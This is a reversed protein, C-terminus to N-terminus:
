KPRMFRYLFRQFQEPFKMVDRNLTIPEYGWKDMFRQKDLMFDHTQRTSQSMYKLPNHLFRAGGHVCVKLGETYCDMFFDFVDFYFEYRDDFSVRKLLSTRMFITPLAENLSIIDTTGIEGWRIPSKLVFPTKNRVGFSYNFGTPRASPKEEWVGSVIDYNTTEACRQMIKIASPHIILDDDLFLIYKTTVTKSINKRAAGPAINQLCKTVQVDPYKSYVEQYADIVKSSDGACTSDLVAIKCPVSSNEYISALCNELCHPRGNTPIAITIEVNEPM